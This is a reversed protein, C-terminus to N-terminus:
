DKAEEAKKRAYEVAGDIDPRVPWDLTARTPEGLWKGNDLERMAQKEALIDHAPAIVDFRADTYNPLEPLTSDFGHLVLECDPFRDLVMLIVVFGTSPHRGLHERAKGWQAESLWRLCRGNAERIIHAVRPWGDFGVSLQKPAHTVWHECDLTPKEDRKHEHETWEGYWAWADMRAGADLAGYAWFSKIRVVFDCADIIEGKGGASPGQGVVCVRM